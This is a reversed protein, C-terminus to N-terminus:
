PARRDNVITQIEVLRREAALGRDIAERAIRCLQIVEEPPTGTAAARAIRAVTDLSSRLDIM